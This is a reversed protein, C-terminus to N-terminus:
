QLSFRESFVRKAPVGLAALDKSLMRMVVPPGCLFVDREAADPVVRQLYDRTVFGSSVTVRPLTGSQPLPPLSEESLVHHVPMGYRASLNEVEQRLAIEDSKLSGYILVVDRGQKLLDEAISRLPTIGIGFALCLVKPSTGRASTFIGYPGELIVRTGPPVSPVASSFDGVAKVSLRLQKGDYPLSLSYPHSEWWLRPCLFRMMVFQGSRFRYAELNRGGIVVSTVNRTEPVVAAVVFRHRFSRALPLGVRYVAVVGVALLSVLWWYAMFAASAQLSGGLAVQHWFALLVAAYMALHVAYWWQYNWSTWPQILSYILIVVFLSFAVSAGIVGDMRLVTAADSALAGTDGQGYAALILLPHAILPALFVQGIRHHIRALGDLGHVQELWTARSMILLQALALSALLLGAFQGAALWIDTSPAVRIAHTWGVVSIGAHVAVLWALPSVQSVLSRVRSCSPAVSASATRPCLGGHDKDM